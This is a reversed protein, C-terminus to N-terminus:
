PAEYEMFDLREPRTTAAPISVEGFPTILPRDLDLYHFFFAVRVDGVWYPSEQDRIDWADVAIESGSSSLIKEDWPVQWDDRSRDSMQQTFEGVDFPGTSDHVILEVLHCPENADVLHLGIVEVTATM